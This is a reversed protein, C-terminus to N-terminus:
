IHGWEISKKILESINKCGSKQLMNRRHTTVTHYSLELIESIKKASNGYALLSLVQLERHTLHKIPLSEQQNKVYQMHHIDERGGIGIILASYSNQQTIHQINTHVNLAHWLKGDQNKSIHIAQHHFMEYNGKHTKMRFCYSVKLNQMHEWGIEIMKDISMKEANLVFEIDNPHVLDIIDKLFSPQKKLGHMKLLNPHVNSITSDTVNIIYYYFEGMSFVEAIFHEISHTTATTQIVNDLNDPYSNWIELLPHKKKPDAQYNANM